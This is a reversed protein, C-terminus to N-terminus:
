RISSGAQEPSRCRWVDVIAVTVAVIAPGLVMGSAGFIAVGGLFAILAPAPHMRMRGGSIHAYLANDVFTFTLAGWTFIAAAAGWRGDAALYVGVPLWVLAAGAIPLLSLVFMAATWVIAAPIGLWWFLLGFGTCDIVSTVVTAYLNAHISDAVGAFVKDAEPKTLPLLHRVGDLLPVKDRFFFFLLFLAVLAQFAWRASGMALAGAGSGFSEASKKLQAEIDVGTQDLWRLTQDGGPIRRLTERV